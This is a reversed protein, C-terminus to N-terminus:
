CLSSPPVLPSSRSLPPSCPPRSFRVQIGAVFLCFCSEIFAAGVLTTIESRNSVDEDSLGAAIRGIEKAFPATEWAARGAAMMAAPPMSPHARHLCILGMNFNMWIGAVSFTRYQVATGFPTERRDTYEDGLPMFEPGLRSRFATFAARLSEWESLAARTAQELDTDDVGESQPSPDRAPSFGTPATVKGTTPFMGPFMPPSSGPPGPMKNVKRKRPLDDSAFESLRGLLLLLHDFTGYSNYSTNTCPSPLSTFSPSANRSTSRHPSEPPLIALRPVAHQSLTLWLVPIPAHAGEVSSYGM